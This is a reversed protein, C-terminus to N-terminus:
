WQCFRKGVFVLLSKYKVLCKLKSQDTNSQVICNKVSYILRTDRTQKWYLSITKKQLFFMPKKLILLLIEYFQVWKYKKLMKIFCQLSHKPTTSLNSSTLELVATSVALLYLLMYTYIGIFTHFYWHAVTAHHYLDRNTICCMNHYILILLLIFPILVITKALNTFINKWM